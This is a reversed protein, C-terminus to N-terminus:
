YINCPINARKAENVILDIDFKIGHGVIVNDNIFQLFFPLIKKIKPKGYVMENTINHIVISEQPIDCEPDILNEFHAISKEFSFKVAAIEIIKDKELDLGTSECDICIFTDKNILGM